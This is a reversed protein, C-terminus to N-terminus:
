RTVGLPLGLVRPDGPLWYFVGQCEHDNLHGDIDGVYWDHDRHFLSSLGWALEEPSYYGVLEWAPRSGFDGHIHIYGWPCPTLPAVCAPEAWPRFWAPDPGRRLENMAETRSVSTKSPYAAPAWARSM